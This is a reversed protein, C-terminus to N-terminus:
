NVVKDLVIFKQGGQERLLVVKDGNKLENSITISKNENDLLITTKYNMVNRTLILFSHDLVMRQEVNIKLPNTSIVKGYMIAVPYTTDMTEKANQKLFKNLDNFDRLSSM